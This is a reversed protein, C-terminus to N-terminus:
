SLSNALDRAKRDARILLPEDGGICDRERLREEMLLSPIAGYVEALGECPKDHEVILREPGCRWGCRLDAQPAEHDVGPKLTL